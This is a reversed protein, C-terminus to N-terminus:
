NPLAVAQLITVKADTVDQWRGNNDVYSFNATGSAWDSELVMRLKTNPGELPTTLGIPGTGNAVVLIHTENPMVTMYTYDGELTTPVNLAPNISGNTVMGQGNVRRAPTSVVLHVTFTPAGMLGSTIEYSVPFLGVNSM